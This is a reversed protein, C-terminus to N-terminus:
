NPSVILSIKRLIVARINRLIELLFIIQALVYPYKNKILAKRIEFPVDLPRRTSIGGLAFDTITENLHIFKLEDPVRLFFDLDAVINFGTDFDGIVDFILKQMFSAPHFIRRGRFSLFGKPPSCTKGSVQINGHVCAIDENRSFVAAVKKFAGDLYFDDSNLFSIVDGSAIRLGKNFADYIGRDPASVVQVFPSKCAAIIELTRDTSCNDIIIHEIDVGRQAMVSRVTREITKESNYTATIVSFKM